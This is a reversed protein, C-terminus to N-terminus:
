NTDVEVHMCVYMCVYMYMGLLLRGRSRSGVEVSSSRRIRM